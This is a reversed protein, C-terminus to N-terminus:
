HFQATFKCTPHGTQHGASPTLASYTFICQYRGQLKEKLSADHHFENIIITIIIIQDHHHYDAL